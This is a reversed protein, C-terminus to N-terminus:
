LLEHSKHHEKHEPLPPTLRRLITSVYRDVMHIHLAFTGHMFFRVCLNHICTIRPQSSYPTLVEKRQPQLQLQLQLQIYVRHPNDKRGMVVEVM